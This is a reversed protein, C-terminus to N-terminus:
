FVRAVKVFQTPYRRRYYSICIGEGPKATHIMMGNGICMGIHEIGTGNRDNMDFGLLDGPQELGLSIPEGTLIQQSSVRPLKVDIVNFLTQMFGSCDMGTPEAGGFVYDIKPLYGMYYNAAIMLQAIKNDRQGAAVQSDLETIKNILPLFLENTNTM